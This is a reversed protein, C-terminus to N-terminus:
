AINTCTRALIKHKWYKGQFVRMGKDQLAISAQGTNLVPVETSGALAGLSPEPAIGYIESKFPVVVVRFLFESVKAEFEKNVLRM